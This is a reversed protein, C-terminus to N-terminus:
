RVNVRPLTILPKHTYQKSIYEPVTHPEVTSSKTRNDRARNNNNNNETPQKKDTQNHKYGLRELTPKQSPSEPIENTPGEEVLDTPYQHAFNDPFKNPKINKSQRIFPFVPNAKKDEFSGLIEKLKKPEKKAADITIDDSDYHYVLNEINEISGLPAQDGVMGDLPDDEAEEPQPETTRVPTATAPATTYPNCYSELQSYDCVNYCCEEVLGRRRRIHPMAGMYDKAQQESIFDVQASAGRRMLTQLGAEPRGQVPIEHAGGKRPKWRNILVRRECGPSFVGRWTGDKLNPGFLFVYQESLVPFNSYCLQRTAVSYAVGLPTSRRPQSNYGRNGCVFSLVDALTSGCLYEAQTEKVLLCVVALSALVYVSSLNMGTAQVDSSIGAQKDQFPLGSIPHIRYNGNRQGCTIWVQGTLIPM